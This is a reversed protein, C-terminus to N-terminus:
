EPFGEAPPVTPQPENTSSYEKIRDYKGDPTIFAMVEENEIEKSDFEEETLDPNISELFLRLKWLWDPHNRFNDWVRKPEHDVVEFQIAWYPAQNKDTKDRVEVVRLKYWGSILPPFGGGADATRPFRVM